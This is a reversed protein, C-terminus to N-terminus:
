VSLGIINIITNAYIDFGLFRLICGPLLEKQMLKVSTIQIVVKALRQRWAILFNLSALRNDSWTWLIFNNLTKEYAHTQNTTTQPGRTPNAIFLRQCESFLLLDSYKKTYVYIMDLKASINYEEFDLVQGAEIHNYMCNDCYYECNIRDDFAIKYIFYALM